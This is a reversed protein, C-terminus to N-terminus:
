GMSRALFGLVTHAYLEPEVRYGSVHDAGPIVLLQKPGRDAKFIAFGEAPPVTKDATGVIVLLPQHLHAADDVPRVQLPNFGLDAAGIALLPGAFPDAPLHTTRTFLYSIEDGLASFGSDDIVAQVDAGRAAAEISSSAGMSYGILAVPGPDLRHAVKVAAQIDAPEAWGLSTYSGDSTGSGRLDFVLVNYGAAHLYGAQSMPEARSSTWGHVMVVTRHETGPIWWGRLTLGAPDVFSLDRYVWGFASPPSGDGARQPHLSFHEATWSAALWFALVLGVIRLLHRTM